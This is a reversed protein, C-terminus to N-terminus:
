SLIQKLREGRESNLVKGLIKKELIEKYDRLNCMVTICVNGLYQQVFNWAMRSISSIWIIRVSTIIM